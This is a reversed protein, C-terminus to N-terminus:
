KANTGGKSEKIDQINKAAPTSITHESNMYLVKIGSKSISLIKMGDIIDGVKVVKNNIIAQPTLGGWMVGNLKIEPLPKVKMPQMIMQPKNHQVVQQQQEKEKELLNEFPDRLNSSTYELQPKALLDEQPAISGSEQKAELDSIEKLTSSVAAYAYSGAICWAVIVLIYITRKNNM